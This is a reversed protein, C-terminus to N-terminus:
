KAKKRGGALARIAIGMVYAGGVILIFWIVSMWVPQEYVYLFIYPGHWIRLLNLVISVAAYLFTPVMAWLTHKKDLAPREFIVFSLLSLIPCINHMYLVSGWLMMFRFGMPGFSPALITVVVLFTLTLCCTAMYRLIAAARTPEFIGKKLQKMSSFVYIFSALCALINSDETYYIIMHSLGHHGKLSLYIAYIETLALIANLLISIKFKKEKTM